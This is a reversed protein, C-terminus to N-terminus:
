RGEGEAAVALARESFVDAIACDSTILAMRHEILRTADCDSTILAM